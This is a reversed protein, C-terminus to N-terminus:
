NVITKIIQDGASASFDIAKDKEVVDETTKKVTVYYTRRVLRRKKNDWRVTTRKEKVSETTQEVFDRYFRDAGFGGELSDRVGDAVPKNNDWCGFLVDEGTGGALTDYRYGGHLLDDGKGGLIDNETMLGGYLDDDGGGGAIQYRGESNPQDDRCAIFDNDDGGVVLGYHDIFAPVVFYIEHGAIEVTDSENPQQVCLISDRGSEGDIQLVEAGRVQIYDDGDGASIHVRECGIARLVDSGNGAIVSLQSSGIADLIHGGGFVDGLMVTVPKVCYFLVNGGAGMSAVEISIIEDADYSEMRLDGDDGLVAVDISEGVQAFEIAGGEDTYITLVGNDEDIDIDARCTSCIASAAIVLSLVLFRRFLSNM